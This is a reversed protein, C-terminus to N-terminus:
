FSSPPGHGLYEQVSSLTNQHRAIPLEQLSRDAPRQLQLYLTVPTSDADLTGLLSHKFIFELQLPNFDLLINRLSHTGDKFM